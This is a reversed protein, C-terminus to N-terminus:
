LCLFLLFLKSMENMLSNSATWNALLSNGSFTEQLVEPFDGIAVNKLYAACDLMCGYAFLAVDIKRM